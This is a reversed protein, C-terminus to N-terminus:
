SGVLSPMLMFPGLSVSLQGFQQVESGSKIEAEAFSAVRYITWALAQNQCATRYRFM